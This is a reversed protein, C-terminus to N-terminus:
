STFTTLYHLAAFERRSTVGLKRFAAALQNAITRPSRGRERAITQNSKGSLAAVVVEREAASLPADPVDRLPVSLVVIEQGDIHHARATLGAPRRKM